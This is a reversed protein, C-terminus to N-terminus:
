KIKVTFIKSRTSENNNADYTTLYIEYDGADEIKIKKSREYSRLKIPLGKHMLSKEDIYLNFGAADNKLYPKFDLHCIKNSITPESLLPPKPPTCDNPTVAQAESYHGIFKEKLAKVEIFYTSKNKLGKIITKTQNVKKLLMDGGKERYRILANGTQTHKDWSISVGSDLAVIKINEIPNLHKLSKQFSLETMSHYNEKGSVYDLRILYENPKLYPIIVSNEDVISFNEFPWRFFNNSKQCIRITLNEETFDKMKSLESIDIKILSEEIKASCIFNKSISNNLLQSVPKKIKQLDPSSFYHICNLGKTDDKLVQSYRSKNAQTSSIYNLFFLKMGGWKKNLPAIHNNLIYKNSNYWRHRTGKNQYWDWESIYSEFMLGDINKNLSEGYKEFLFLGRNMIIITRPFSKRIKIIFDHMAKQLFGYNGWPSATDITDLFVGDVKLSNKLWSIQRNISQQWSKNSVDIYFSGWKGNEDPIGDSGIKSIPLGNEGWIVEDDKDREFSISDLYWDRYGNYMKKSKGESQYNVPGDYDKRNSRVSQMMNEDEGISVYAIIKIDDPTGLKKDRGAKLYLVLEKSINRNNKGPHLIILDFDLAKSKEIVGWSGYYVMYNKINTLKRSAKLPGTFNAIIVFLIFLYKLFKYM